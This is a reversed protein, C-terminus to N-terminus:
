TQRFSVVQLIFLHTTTIPDLVRDRWRCGLSQCLERLPLPELRDALDNRIQRLALTLSPNM